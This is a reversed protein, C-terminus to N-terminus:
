SFEALYYSMILTLFVIAGLFWLVKHLWKKGNSTVFIISTIIFSLLVILVSIGLLFLDGYGSSQGEAVILFLIFYCVFATFVSGGFLSLFTSFNSLCGKNQTESM